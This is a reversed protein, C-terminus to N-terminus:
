GNVCSDVIINSTGSAIAVGSAKIQLQVPCNTSCSACNAFVRVSKILTLNVARATTVEDSVSYLEQGNAMLTFKITGAEAPTVSASYMVKYYGKSTLQITDAGSTSIEFPVGSGTATSIRRTIRGLPMMSNAAVAGINDNQLEIIRYNSCSM